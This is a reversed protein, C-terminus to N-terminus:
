KGPRLPLASVAGGQEWPNKRGSPGEEGRATPWGQWKSWLCFGTGSYMTLTSPLLAPYFSAGPLGVDALRAREVAHAHGKCTAAPPYHAVGVGSLAGWSTCTSGSTSGRTKYFTSEQRTRTLSPCSRSYGCALALERGLGAPEPLHGDQELSRSGLGSWVQCPVVASERGAGRLGPSGPGPPLHADLSICTAEGGGGGGGELGRFSSQGEERESDQGPFDPSACRLEGEDRLRLEECGPFRDDGSAPMRFGM